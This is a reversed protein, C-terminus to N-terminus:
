RSGSILIMVSSLRFNCIHVLIHVNQDHGTKGTCAFGGGETNKLVHAKDADIIDGALEDFGVEIEAGFAAILNLAYCQNDVAPFGSESVIGKLGEALKLREFILAVDHEEVTLVGCQLASVALSAAAMRHMIIDALSYAKLVFYKCGESILCFINYICGIHLRALKRAGNFPQQESSFLNRKVENNCAETELAAYRLIGIKDKIHAICGVGEVIILKPVKRTLVLLHLIKNERIFPDAVLEILELTHHLKQHRCKKFLALAPEHDGEAAGPAPMTGYSHRFSQMVPQLIFERDYQLVAVKDAFRVINTFAEAFIM